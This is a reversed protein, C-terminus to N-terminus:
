IINKEKLRFLVMNKIVEEMPKKGNFHHVVEVINDYKNIDTLTLGESKKTM